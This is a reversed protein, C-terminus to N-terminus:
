KADINGTSFLFNLFASKGIWQNFPDAGPLSQLFCFAILFTICIITTHSNVATHHAVHRVQAEIIKTKSNFSMRSRKYVVQFLMGCQKEFNKPLVYFPILQRCNCMGTNTNTHTSLAGEAFGDGDVEGGSGGGEEEAEEELSEDISPFVQSPSARSNSTVAMNLPVANLTM